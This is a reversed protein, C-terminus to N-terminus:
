RKTASISSVLPYPIFVFRLQVDTMYNKIYYPKIIYLSLILSVSHTLWLSDGSADNIIVTGKAHARLVNQKASNSDENSVDPAGDNYLITSLSPNRKENYAIDLTRLIMSKPDTILKKSVTLYLEGGAHKLPIKKPNMRSKLDIRSKRTHIRSHGLYNLLLGKFNELFDDSDPDLEDEPENEKWFYPDKEKVMDSTIYAYSYGTNFPWEKGSLHPLKYAIYWDVPNGDEDMCTPSENTADSLNLFIQFFFALWLKNIKFSM